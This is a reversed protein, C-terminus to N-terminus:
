ERAIVAAWVEKAGNQKLVKAAEDITAGTTFVDDILLIKKNKIISIMKPNIAFIGDVNNKREIRSLEVQSRTNRTRILVNQIQSHISKTLIDAIEEAQNFGRFRLKTKSLPVPVIIFDTLKHKVSALELHTILLSTLPIALSKILPPYKFVHIAKKVISNQFSTAAFLGNLYHNHSCDRCTKGEAVITPTNCFPCYCDQLVEILSLCDVCLYDGFEQCNICKKPFFMDWFKELFNEV